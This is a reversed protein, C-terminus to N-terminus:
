SVRQLGAIEAAVNSRARAEWHRRAHETHFLKPKGLLDQLVALRGLAFTADDYAAYEQRVGSVYEDYRTTDSALVALDADSLVQGRWDDDAPAHTATLRVLRAVEAVDVDSGALETEALRASREENSPDPQDDYVADHFWAALVLSVDDGHGLEDIRRVVESLHLVDHYGRGTSYATFLRDRLDAHDPLPWSALLDMGNLTREDGAKVIGRM